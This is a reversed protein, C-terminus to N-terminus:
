VTPPAPPAGVLGLRTLPAATLQRLALGLGCVVVCVAVILVGSSSVAAPIAWRAGLELGPEIQWIVYSAYAIGVVGATIMVSAVIQVGASSFRSGPADMGSVRSGALVLLALGGVLLLAMVVDTPRHWRGVIVALGVLSALCAAYMAAAARWVRPVALLLAVGAAAALLTHGSPASNAPNSITNVLVPRPLRYKLMHAAFVLLAFLVLQGLLWWRRRMVTVLAAAVGTAVSVGIVVYTHTFLRLLAMPAAPMVTDLNAFVMDDYNQGQATRVGLWWVGAAALLLLLGAIICVLVSSVRPRKTLPDLRALGEDIEDRKADVTADVTLNPKAGATADTAPDVPDIRQFAVGADNATPSPVTESEDSMTGVTSGSAWLGRCPTPSFLTFGWAGTLPWKGKSCEQGPPIPHCLAVHLCADTYVM